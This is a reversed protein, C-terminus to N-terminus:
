ARVHTVHIDGGIELQNINQFDLLRHTYDFLHQGNVIVKFCHNECLIYMTFMQGPSFPMLFNMNREETGWSQGVQTNRVITNENFRPNLHFAVDGGRRLNIHFRFLLALFIDRLGESSCSVVLEVLPRRRPQTAAGPPPLSWAILERLTLFMLQGVTTQRALPTVSVPDTRIPARPDGVRVQFDIFTLRVSGQVNITDVRHFPLRHQYELFYSGNVTVLFSSSQVLIRIEFPLGKQFPMKMKREEKGWKDKEKTNCVVYNGDEFRPNFHFAIDEDNGGCQLNVAFRPWFPVLTIINIIIINTNTLRKSHASCQELCQPLCLPILNDWTPSVTKIGM